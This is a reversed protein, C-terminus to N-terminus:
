GADGRAAEPADQRAVLGAGDREVREGAPDAGDREALRPMARGSARPDLVPVALGMVHHDHGVIAVLDEPLALLDKEDVARRLQEM